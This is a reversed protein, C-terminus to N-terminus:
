ITFILACTISAGAGPTTAVACQPLRAIEPDVTEHCMYVDRFALQEYKVPNEQRRLTRTVGV